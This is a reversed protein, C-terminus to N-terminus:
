GVKWIKIESYVEDLGLGVARGFGWTAVTNSCAHQLEITQIAAFTFAGSVFSRSTTDNGGGSLEATGILLSGAPSITNIIAKHFDVKYAPASAEMYYTGIPLTIRNASLSAGTISNAIVTNLDRTRYAFNTFTGGHTGAAKIDKVHLFRDFNLGGFIKGDLVYTEIAEIADNANAHQLSHSPINLSDNATPNTFNDVGTPFNTPM